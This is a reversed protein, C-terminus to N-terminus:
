DFTAWLVTNNIHISSAANGFVGSDAYADASSQVWCFYLSNPRANFITVCVSTGSQDDGHNEYWGVGDSWSPTQDGSWAVWGNESMGWVTLWTHATNHAVYGAASDWWDFSFNVVATFRQAPNGAADSSFWFGIGAGVTQDGNGISQVRLDYVGTNQDASESGQGGPLTYTGDYPPGRTVSAADAPSRPIPLKGKALLPRGVLKARREILRSQEVAIQKLKVENSRLQGLLLDRFKDQIRADEAYRARRQASREAYYAQLQSKSQEVAEFKLQELKQISSRQSPSTSM